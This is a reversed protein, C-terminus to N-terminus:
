VFQSAVHAILDVPREKDAAEFIGIAFAWIWRRQVSSGLSPATLHQSWVTYPRSSPPSKARKALEVEADANEAVPPVNKVALVLQEVADNLSVSVLPQAVNLVRWPVTQRLRRLCKDIKVASHSPSHESPLAGVKVASSLAAASAATSITDHLGGDTLRAARSASTITPRSKQWKSSPWGRIQM